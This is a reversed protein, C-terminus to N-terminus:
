KTEEIKVGALRLAAIGAHTVHFRTEHWTPPRRLMWGGACLACCDTFSAHGVDVSYYNRWGGVTTKGGRRQIGLAQSLIGAQEVSLGLRKATRQELTM